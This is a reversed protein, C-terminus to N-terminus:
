KFKFVWGRENELVWVAEMGTQPSNLVDPQKYEGSPLTNNTAVVSCAPRDQYKEVIHILYQDLTSTKINCGSIDLNDMDYAEILPLMDRVISGSLNLSRMSLFVSAFGINDVKRNNKLSANGVVFSDIAFMKEINMGSLDLTSISFSGYMKIQRKLSTKNNFIHEIRRNSGLEITQIDTNDGWDIFLVGDGGIVMSAVSAHEYAYIVLKEKTPKDKYFVDYAGNSPYQNAEFHNITANSIIHNEDYEMIDGEVIVSDLTINKNSMLLYVLGDLSGYISLAIDYINQGSKVVYKSM